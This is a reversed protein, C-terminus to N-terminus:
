TISQLHRIKMYLVDIVAHQVLRSTMDQEYSSLLNVQARPSVQHGLMILTQHSSLPQEPKYEDMMMVVKFYSALKLYREYTQVIDCSIGIEALRLKFDLAVSIQDTQCYILVRKELEIVEAAGDIQKFDLLRETRKLAEQMGNFTQHILASTSDTKQRLQIEHELMHLDRMLVLKMERLGSFGIRQSFRVLASGSVEAQVALTKGPLTAFDLPSEKILAAIRKEVPSLLHEISQLQNLVIPMSM